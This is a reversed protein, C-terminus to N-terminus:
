LLGSALLEDAASRTQDRSSPLWVAYHRLTTNISEHGMAAQVDVVPARSALLISAYTDRLQHLQLDIGTKVRIGAKLSVRDGNKATRYEPDTTKRGLVDRDWNRPQLPRGDKGPFVLGTDGHKAWEELARVGPALIPVTRSEHSKPEKFSRDIDLARTVSLTRATLDVDRWDLALLESKRLGTYAAVRILTADRLLECANALREVDTPTYAVPAAPRPQRFGRADDAARCDTLGQARAWRLMARLARLAKNCTAASTTTRLTTMWESVIRPTLRDASHKGIHPIIHTAGTGVYGRYTNRSWGEINSDTWYQYLEAITARGTPAEKGVMRRHYARADAARSFERADYPKGDVSRSRYNWRVIYITRGRRTTKVVGM